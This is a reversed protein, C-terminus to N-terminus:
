FPSYWTNARDIFHLSALKIKKADVELKFDFVKCPKLIWKRPKTGDIKPLCLSWEKRITDFGRLISPTSIYTVHPFDSTVISSLAIAKVVSKSNFGRDFLKPASM